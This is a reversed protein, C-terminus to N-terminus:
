DEATGNLLRLPVLILKIESYESGSSRYSFKAELTYYVCLEGNYWRLYAPAYQSFSEYRTDETTYIEKLKMNLITEEMESDTGLASMEVDINCIKVRNIVGNDNVNVEVYNTRYGDIMNYYRFQYSGFASSVDKQRPMDIYEYKSVDIWPLLAPGILAQAEEPTANEEIDM